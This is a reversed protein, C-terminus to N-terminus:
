HSGPKTDLGREDSGLASSPAAYDVNVYNGGPRSDISPTQAHNGGPQTDISPYTSASAQLSTAGLAIASAAVILKLAKM